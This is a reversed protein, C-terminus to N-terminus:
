PRGAGIPSLREPDPVGTQNACRVMPQDHDPGASARPLPRRTWAHSCHTCLYLAHLTSFLPQPAPSPHGLLTATPSDAVAAAPSEPGDAATILTSFLPRLAAASPDMLTAGDSSCDEGAAGSLCAAGAGEEGSLIGRAAAGGGGGGDGGDGGGRPPLLRVRPVHLQDAAGGGCSGGSARCSGDRRPPSAPRRRAVAPPRPAVAPRRPAIRVVSVRSVDLQKLHTSSRRQTSVRHFEIFCPAADPAGNYALPPHAHVSRCFGLM